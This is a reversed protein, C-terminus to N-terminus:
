AVTWFFNVLTSDTTEEVCGDRSIERLFGRIRKEAAADVTVSGKLRELYWIEAAELTRRSKWTAHEYVVEPNFGCGWITDFAYAVSDDGTQPSLGALARVQDAVAGSRRAHKCLACYRRSAAIMKVLTAYDAIAPTTHAFVFDYKKRFEEEPCHWWDRVLFSANRVGHEEAYIGANQVMAPSFDLGVVSKVRDAMAFAYAGTGCGVDLVTMERNLPVRSQVFQLFGNDRFSIENKGVYDDAVSDWARIAAASDGDARNHWNQQIYALDM